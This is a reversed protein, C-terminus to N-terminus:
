LGKRYEILAEVCRDIDEENNYFHTAIRIGQPKETVFVKKEQLFAKARLPEPLACLTQGSRYPGGPSLVTFGAVTLRETLYTNLALIRAEIEKIGINELYSIAAGLAFIAGFPPCGLEMRRSSSLVRYRRIDFGFPEEVSLWGISRPAYKALLERHIYVFGAGFGACLWKHGASALADIRSQHVHIPFAGASQSAGIVLFRGGKIAGFAGLDQRCGNSFQVHSIAITAAAPAQELSFREPLLVGDEASIVELRVGRHVWPLTIAPFELEDSLVPGAEGLLDVIFNMGTSTNPVFAVEDAQAGIFCAVKQRVVEVRSLWEEWYLDGGEELERYFTNVAERVPRPTPSTAAANLYVCRALAPFDKRAEDWM